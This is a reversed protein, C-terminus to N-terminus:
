KAISELYVIFSDELQNISKCPAFKEFEICCFIVLYSGIFKGRCWGERKWIGSQFM